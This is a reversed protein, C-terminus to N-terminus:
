VGGITALLNQALVRTTLREATYAYLERLLRDYREAHFRDYLGRGELLAAKPLTTLTTAPCGELDEFVPVCSNGLIEYHRLADWGAKKRTIGFYSRQYDAYYEEERKFIYTERKGPIVTGLHQTKETKLGSLKVTPLAFSIPYVNPMPAILERKFYPHRTHLPHVDTDDNGDILIVRKPPYVKAVLDYYDLCRRAAGYIIFDYFRAGIREPIDDRGEPSFGLLWFATMGGWLSEVPISPQMERYLSPIPTSDVVDDGVLEKLGYFTLDNLYDSIFGGSAQAIQNFNTVFLLKM